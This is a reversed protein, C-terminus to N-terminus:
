WLRRFRVGTDIADNTDGGHAAAGGSLASENANGGKSLSQPQLRPLATSSIQAASTSPDETGVREESEDDADDDDYDDDDGNDGESPSM